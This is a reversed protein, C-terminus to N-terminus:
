DLGYKASHYGGRHAELSICSDEEKRKKKETPLIKENKKSNLIAFFMLSFFAVLSITIATM